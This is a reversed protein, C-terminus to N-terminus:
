NGPTLFEYLCFGEGIGRKRRRWRTTRPSARWRRRRGRGPLPAPADQALRPEMGFTVDAGDLLDGTVQVRALSSLGASRTKLGPAAAYLRQATPSRHLNGECIFLVHRFTM